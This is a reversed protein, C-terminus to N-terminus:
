FNKCFGDSLWAPKGFTKRGVQNMKATLKLLKAPKTKLYLIYLDGPRPGKITRIETFNFYFYEFPKSNCLDVTIKLLNKFHRVRFNPHQLIQYLLLYQAKCGGNMTHFVTYVTRIKLLAFFYFYSFIYGKGLLVTGLRANRSEEYQHWKVCNNRISNRLM